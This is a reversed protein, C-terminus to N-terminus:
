PAHTDPAAASAAHAHATAAPADTIDIDPADAGVPAADEPTPAPKSKDALIPIFAGPDIPSEFHIGIVHARGAIFQCHAVVGRVAIAERDISLMSVVCKAGPPIFASHFLGIGGVSLDSVPVRVALTAASGTDFRVLVKFAPPAIFRPHTRRDDPRAFSAVLRAHEQDTLKLPEVFAAKATDSM